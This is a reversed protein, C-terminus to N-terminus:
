ADRGSLLDGDFEVKLVWTARVPGEDDEDVVAGAAHAKGVAEGPHEVTESLELLGDGAEFFAM